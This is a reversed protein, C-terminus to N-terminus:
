VEASLFCCSSSFCFFLRDMGGEIFGVSWIIIALSVIISAIGTILFNPIITFAPENGYVWMRNAEGIAHIILGKIPTNGQLAEFFGHCIGGLAFIVGFVSVIVRTANVSHRGAKYENTDIMLM